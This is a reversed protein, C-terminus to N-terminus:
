KHLPAFERHVGPTDNLARGDVEIWAHASLADAARRVGIQLQSGIGQRALLYELALSRSLCTGPLPSHRRVREIAGAAISM